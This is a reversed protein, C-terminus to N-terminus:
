GPASDFKSPMSACMPALSGHRDGISRLVAGSRKSGVHPAFEPDSGRRVRSSTIANESRQPPGLGQVSSARM